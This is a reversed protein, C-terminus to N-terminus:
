IGDSGDSTVTIGGEEGDEECDDGNGIEVDLGFRRLVAANTELHTTVRPVRMRGGALALFALLQDAAHEDVAGAGGHRDRFAAVADAAVAEASKGREGLADIGILTRAYVGRVLLASGPSNTEAYGVSEVSAPLGADDLREAAAAAQREAVEGDALSEAALSYLEVAELDGRDALALPRLESPALRLRARGGGAPYFGPREREAAADLGFRALLPLKVRAYHAFTPSWKVDTGGAAVVTLPEDLGLALPLAADFRLTVSAAIGVASEVRGGSLPGPEFRVTEAGEAAGEVDADCCNAVLEVAAVHQPRLGPEPRDGRANTLEFAEGTLASLALATRLVQGGGDAGDIEIM